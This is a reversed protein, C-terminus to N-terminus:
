GRIIVVKYTELENIPRECLVYDQLARCTYGTRSLRLALAEAEAETLVKAVRIM